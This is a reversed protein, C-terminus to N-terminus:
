TSLQRVLMALDDAVYAPEPTIPLDAPNTVGTLVLAFPVQLREAM